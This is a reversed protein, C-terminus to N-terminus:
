IESFRYLRNIGVQDIMIFLTPTEYMVREMEYPMNSKMSSITYINGCPSYITVDNLIKLDHLVIYVTISIVLDLISWSISLIMNRPVLPDIRMYVDISMCAIPQSISCNLTCFAGHM